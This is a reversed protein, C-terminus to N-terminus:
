LRSKIEINVVNVPKKQLKIELAGEHMLATCKAPDVDSPLRMLRKFSRTMTQEAPRKKDKDKANEQDSKGDAKKATKTTEDAEIVLADERIYVKVHDKSFGPLEAKLAYEHENESVEVRPIWIASLNSQRGDKSHHDSHYSPILSFDSIFQRMQNSFFDDFSRFFPGSFHSLAM